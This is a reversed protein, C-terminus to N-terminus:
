PDHTKITLSIIYDRLGYVLFLFLTSSTSSQFRMSKYGGKWIELSRIYSFYRIKLTKNIYM